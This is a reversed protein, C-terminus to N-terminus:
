GQRGIIGVMKITEDMVAKGNRFDAFSPMVQLFSLTKQIEQINPNGEALFIARLFCSMSTKANIDKGDDKLKKMMINLKKAEGENKGEFMQKLVSTDIFFCPMKM